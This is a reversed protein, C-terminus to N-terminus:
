FAHGINLHFQWTDERDFVPRSFDIGVPGIPTSVRFGSGAAFRIDTLDFRNEGRWVNGYDLFVVMSVPDVVKIRPEISGELISNGGVPVGDDDLPGLMQRPWGRVSQSGGAFYREEVPTSTASGAPMISGGKIRAALVVGNMVPQYRKIEFLYKFFPYPSSFLSGNARTNFALSWGGVPDFRPRADNFLMGFSVGNKSYSSIALDDPDREFTSAIDIDVREFYLSASATLDDGLAQHFSLNNGWVFSEFGEEARTRLYPNLAMSSNPGFVAPQTVTTEFRYPELGSHKAYFNTRQTRGPFNLYTLDVFTRFNDERGYGVGYRTSLRPAEQISLKVPITDRMGEGRRAQMSAIRFLGLGYVQKQSQGLRESSYVGGEEIAFQKRIAAEPTREAGEISIEGFYSLPGKRIRWEINAKLTDPTLSIAPEVEAYAYGLSSFWSTIAEQDSKVLDDRFRSGVETQLRKKFRDWAKTRLLSDRNGGQETMFGVSDVMVPTGEDIDITLDVRYKRDRMELGPSGIEVNLYGEAQYFSRLQQKNMDWADSSYFSPEQRLITRRLWSSRSFSVKELLEGDDFAENGNIRVRRIEANEQGALIVPSLQCLLILFIRFTNKIYLNM